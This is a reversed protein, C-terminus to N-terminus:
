RKARNPETACSQDHAVQGETRGGGHGQWDYFKQTTSRNDNPEGNAAGAYLGPVSPEVPHVLRPTSRAPLAPPEDITNPVPAVAAAKEAAEKIIRDLEAQANEPNNIDLTVHVIGNEANEDDQARLLGEIARVFAARTEADGQQETATSQPTYGASAFLDKVTASLQDYLKLEDSTAGNGAAFRETMRDRQAQLVAAERAITRREPTIDKGGLRAVNDAFHKKFKQKRLDSSETM